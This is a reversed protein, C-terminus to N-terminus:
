YCASSTMEQYHASKCVIRTNYFKQIMRTRFLIKSGYLIEECISWIDSGYRIIINNKNSCVYTRYVPHSALRTLYEIPIDTQFINPDDITDMLYRYTKQDINQVNLLTIGRVNWRVGYGYRILLPLCSPCMILFVRWEVSEQIIDINAGNELLLRIQEPDRSYLLLKDKDVPIDCRILDPLVRLLLSPHCDRPINYINSQMHAISRVDPELEIGCEDLVSYLEDDDIGSRYRSRLAENINCSNVASSQGIILPVIQQRYIYNDWVYLLAHVDMAWVANRIDDYIYSDLINQIDMESILYTMSSKM